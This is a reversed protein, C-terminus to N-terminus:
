AFAFIFGAQAGWYLVWVVYPTLCRAAHAKPLLFTETALTLDSLIFALAPAVAFGPPLTLAAIGMSLIIPIYATVPGHLTGAPRWLLRAAVLGTLILAVLLALQLPEFIRSVDSAPHALFLVVYAIHGAAFAAVGAMFTGEGDRSLLWDGCACLALALALLPSTTWAGIALTAVALTKVISRVMSVPRPAMPLYALAAILAVTFAASM